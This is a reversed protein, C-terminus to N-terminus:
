GNIVTMTISSMGDIYGNLINLLIPSNHLLIAFAKYMHLLLLLQDNFISFTGCIMSSPFTVCYQSSNGKNDVIGKGGRASM